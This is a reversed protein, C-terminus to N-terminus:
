GLHKQGWANLNSVVELLSQGKPTLEVVVHNAYGNVRIRSVIQHKELEILQHNLIRKSIGKLRRQLASFRLSGEFLAALIRLRWRGGLIVLCYEAGGFNATKPIYKGEVPLQSNM